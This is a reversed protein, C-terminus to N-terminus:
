VGVSGDISANDVIIIEYNLYKLNKLSPLHKKLFEKGNWIVNVVSVLPNNKDNM